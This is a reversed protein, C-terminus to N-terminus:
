VKMFNGLIFLVCVIASITSVCLSHCELNAKHEYVDKLSHIKSTGQHILLLALGNLRDETM